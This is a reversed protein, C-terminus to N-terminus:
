LFYERSVVLAADEFGRSVLSELIRKTAANSPALVLVRRVDPRDVFSQCIAAITSTKGTGPPGRISTVRHTHAAALALRQSANLQGERAAVADAVAPPLTARLPVALAALEDDSPHPSAGDARKMAVVSCTAAQAAAAVAAEVLDPPPLLLNPFPAGALLAVGLRLGMTVGGGGAGPPPLQPLVDAPYGHAAAAAVTHCRLAAKVWREVSELAHDRDRHNNTLIAVSDHNADWWRHVDAGTISGPELLVLASKGNIGGIPAVEGDTLRFPREFPLAAGAPLGRVRPVDDGSAASPQRAGSGSGQPQWRRKVLPQTRQPSLVVTVPYRM